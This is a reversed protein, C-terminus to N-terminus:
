KEKITKHFQNVFGRSFIEIENKIENLSLKTKESKFIFLIQQNPLVKKNLECGKESENFVYKRDVFHQKIFYSFLSYIKRRISNKKVASHNGFFKKPLIIGIKNEFNQNEFIKVFFSESSKSFRSKERRFFKLDQKSFRNRKKIMWHVKLCSVLFKNLKTM